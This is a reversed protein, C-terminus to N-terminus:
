DDAVGQVPRSAWDFFAGVNWWALAVFGLLALGLLM